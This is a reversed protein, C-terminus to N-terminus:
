AFVSGFSIDRIQATTIERMIQILCYAAGALALASLAVLADALMLTQTDHSEALRQAYNTGVNGILWGAWWTKLLPPAPSDFRENANTSTNWLEKMADFPKFLNMIPIFFWGVSWGPSYSLDSFGSEILNAHARHIWMGVLIISLLLTAFTLTEATESASSSTLLGAYRGGILLLTGIQIAVFLWAAITARRARAELRATGDTYSTTM